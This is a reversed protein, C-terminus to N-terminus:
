INNKKRIENIKKCAEDYKKEVREVVLEAVTESISYAAIVVQTKHYWKSVPAHTKILRYVTFGVSMSVTTTIVNKVFERKNEM